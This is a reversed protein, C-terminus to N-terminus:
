RNGEGNLFANLDRVHYRVSRGHVVRYAPREGRARWTRLTGPKYALYVAANETDLWPSAAGPLHRAFTEGAPESHITDPM